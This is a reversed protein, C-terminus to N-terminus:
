AAAAASSHSSVMHRREAAPVVLYREDLVSATEALINRVYREGDQTEGTFINRYHIYSNPWRVSDAWEVLFYVEGQILAHHILREYPWLRNENNGALGQTRQRQRPPEEDERESDAYTSQSDRPRLNHRAQNPPQESQQRQAGSVEISHRQRERQNIGVIIEQFRSGCIM